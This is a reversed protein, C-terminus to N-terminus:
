ENIKQIDKKPLCYCDKKLKDPTKGIYMCKESEGIVYWNKLSRPKLIIEKIKKM